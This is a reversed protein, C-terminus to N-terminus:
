LDFRYKKAEEWFSYMFEEGDMESESMFVDNCIKRVSYVGFKKNSDFPSGCLLVCFVVLSDAGAKEIKSFRGYLENLYAGTPKIPKYEVYYKFLDNGVGHVVFFDPHYNDKFINDRYKDLISPEYQWLAGALDFGRAVIAESKSKFTIGKYETPRAEHQQM